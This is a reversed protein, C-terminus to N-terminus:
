VSFHQGAIVETRTGAKHSGPWTVELSAEAEKDGLGSLM